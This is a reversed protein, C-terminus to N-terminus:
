PKDGCKSVSQPLAARKATVRSRRIAVAFRRKTVALSKFTRPGYLKEVNGYSVPLALRRVSIHTYLNLETGYSFLLASRRAASREYVLGASGYSFVERSRQKSCTPSRRAPNE